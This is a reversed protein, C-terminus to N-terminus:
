ARRPLSTWLESAVDRIVSGGRLKSYFAALIDGSGVASPALIGELGLYHAAEGVAQCARPDDGRLDADDLEVARLASEERLDLVASLRVEYRYLRRPLLNEPPRGHREASRYFEAVITPLDLGMYLVPFSDPPNWRGGAIRAGEGSLPPYGAGMHRYAVEEFGVVGLADVREVLEPDPM